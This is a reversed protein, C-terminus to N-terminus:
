NRTTLAGVDGFDEDDVLRSGLADKALAAALSVGLAAFLGLPLWALSRTREPQFAVSPAQAIAVNAIRTHDLADSIRAEEQKRQYLLYKDEASKLDRALTQQEANEFDLTQARARYREISEKVAKAKTGLAAHDSRSRVLETELWERTPNSESTEERISAARAQDLAARVQELQQDVEVVLRYQPNFKQLLETRKLQLNLLRSQMEQVLGAADGSRQVSVRRDPTSTRETQLATVRRGAEALRHQTEQETAEFEALKQLVVDRQSDAAVIGNQESFSQLKHQAVTVEEASKATQETFFEYAGPPRRVALHKELYLQAMTDLVRKAFAPDSSKYTVDIMFTKKIPEVTMDRRLAAVAMSRLERADEAATTVAMLDVLGSSVAVQELLDHVQMLEVESMMESESVESSRIQNGDGDASPSVLSDVRDRRVLFKLEAEYLKPASLVAAVVVAALLAFCAAITRWQRTLAGVFDRITYASRWRSVSYM